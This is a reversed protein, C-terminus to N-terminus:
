VQNAAIYDHVKAVQAETILGVAAYYDLLEDLTFVSWLPYGAAELQKAGGQQRNVVVAVGKVVLGAKELAAIAELKTDAGTILDDVLLCTEGARYDGGVESTICRTGDSLREKHLTLLGPHIFDARAAHTMQDGFPVGADPIAAIWDFVGISNEQLLKLFLDGVLDMAEDSLPGPKAPHDETRLDLYIPSLPADPNDEHLKLRFEGPKSAFKIAGLRFFLEALLARKKFLPM